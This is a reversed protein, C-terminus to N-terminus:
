PLTVKLIQGLGNPVPGFGFNSVYLNGDPGFTMGTPFFLGSAIVKQKGTKGIRIIDGTMPMPGKDGTSTELVYFRGEKDREIGLIDTFGSYLVTTKGQRDVQLVNAGGQKFSGLNGLYFSGKHEVMVTPVYITGFIASTDLLRTITGDLLVKDFSGRNPELVYLNNGHSVMSYPVGDPEFDDTSPNAVPHTAYYASLNAVMTYTGDANVRAVGNPITQLM